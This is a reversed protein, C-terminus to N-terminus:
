TCAHNIEKYKTSQYAIKAIDRKFDIGCDHILEHISDHKQQKSINFDLNILMLSFSSEFKHSLVTYMRTLIHQAFASTSHPHESYIKRKPIYTALICLQMISNVNGRAYGELMNRMEDELELAESGLWWSAGVAWIVGKGFGM